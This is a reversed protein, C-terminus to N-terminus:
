EGEKDPVDEPFANIEEGMLLTLAAAGALILAQERDFATGKIEIGTNPDEWKWQYEGLGHVDGGKQITLVSNEDMARYMEWKGPGIKQLEMM